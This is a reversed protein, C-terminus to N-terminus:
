GYKIHKWWSDCADRWTPELTSVGDCPYLDALGSEDSCAAQVCIMAPNDGYAKALLKFAKPLPEVFMGTWGALVLDRTMSGVEVGDHAGVDVLYGTRGKFFEIIYKLGVDDAAM